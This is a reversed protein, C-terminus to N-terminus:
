TFLGSTARPKGPSLEPSSCGLEKSVKWAAANLILINARSSEADSLDVKQLRELDAHILVEKAPTSMNCRFYISATHESSYASEGTKYFTFHKEDDADSRNVTLAERLSIILVDDGGESSQIRCYPSGLLEDGILKGDAKRLSQLAKEPKSHDDIFKDTGTVERLASKVDPTKAFAECVTDRTEVKPAGGPQDSADSCGSILAAVVIASVTIMHSKNM